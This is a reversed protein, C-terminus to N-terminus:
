IGPKGNPLPIMEMSSKDTGAKAMIATAEPTQMMKQVTQPDDMVAFTFVREIEANLVYSLIKI